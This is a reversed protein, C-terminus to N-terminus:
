RWRDMEGIIKIRVDNLKNWEAKEMEASFELPVDASGLEGPIGISGGPAALAAANLDPEVTADRSVSGALSSRGRLLQKKKKSPGQGNKLAYEERQNRPRRNRAPLPTATHENLINLFNSLPDSFVLEDYQWSHVPYKSAISVPTPAAMISVGDAPTGEQGAPTTDAGAGTESQGAAAPTGPATATGAPTLAESKVGSADAAPTAEMTVDGDKDEKDENQSEAAAPATAAAPSSAFEGNAPTAGASTSAAQEAETGAKPSNVASEAPQSMAAPTITPASPPPQITGTVPPGWHHLKLTHLFTIPKEGSEQVFQIRISATFEGWGTETVMFPPKDCVLPDANSLGHSLHEGRNPNSYTEHLKFTVKKILYTLDDAGGPLFNM